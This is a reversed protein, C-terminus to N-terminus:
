RASVQWIPIDNKSPSLRPYLQIGRPLSAPLSEPPRLRDSADAQWENPMSNTSILRSSLARKKSLTRARSKALTLSTNEKAEM